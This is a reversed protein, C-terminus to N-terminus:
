RTTMSSAAKVFSPSLLTSQKIISSYFPWALGYPLPWSASALESEDLFFYRYNRGHYKLDIRLAAEAFVIKSENSSPKAPESSRGSRATHTGM